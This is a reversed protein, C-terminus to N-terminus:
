HRRRIVSYIVVSFYDQVKPIRTLAWSLPYLPKYRNHFKLQPNINHCVVELGAEHLWKKYESFRMLNLGGVIDQYRIASDTPRFCESRLRLVADESFLVGRWPIWIRFFGQMHDGIPSHFPEFSAFMVGEPNMLNRVQHLFDRPDHIHEMAGLAIIVDYQREHQWGHIDGTHFITGPHDPVLKEALNNAEVIQRKSIDIGTVDDAGADILGIALRGQGCGIDLYSLTKDVLFRGSFYETRVRHLFNRADDITFDLNGAAADDLEDETFRNRTHTFPKLLHYDITKGFM